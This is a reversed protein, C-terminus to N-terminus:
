RPTIRLLVDGDSMDAIANKAKDGICDAGFHVRQDLVDEVAPAITKLSMDAVPEGKPRGFHALLIVKAGQQELAVALQATFTTKGAGGKHQAVTIVKGAM